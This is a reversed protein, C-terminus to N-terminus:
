GAVLRGPAVGQRRRGLWDSGIVKQMASYWLRDPYPQDDHHGGAPTIREALIRASAHPVLM